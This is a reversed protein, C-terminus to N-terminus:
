AAAAERPSFRARLAKIQADSVGARRAAAEEWARSLLDFRLSVTLRRLGELRPDSLPRNPALGLVDRIWEMVIGPKRLTNPDDRMGLSVALSELAGFDDSPAAAIAQRVRQDSTLIDEAFFKYM